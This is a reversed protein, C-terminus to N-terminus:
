QYKNSLMWIPDKAEHRMGDGYYLRRPTYRLEAGLLFLDESMDTDKTDMEVQLIFHEAKENIANANIVAWETRQVTYATGSSATDEVLIKDFATTPVALATVEPVIARYLSKWLVTDATDTSGCTWHLRMYINFRLDMDEPMRFDTQVMMGDTNMLIGNIGFTSIEKSYPASTHSSEWNVGYADNASGGENIAGVSMGTFFMSPLYVRGPRWWFNSDRKILDNSPAVTKM